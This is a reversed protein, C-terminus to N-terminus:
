NFSIMADQFIAKMMIKLSMTWTPSLTTMRTRFEAKVSEGDKRKLRRRIKSTATLSHSSIMLIVMCSDIKISAKLMTLARLTNDTTKTDSKVCKAHIM